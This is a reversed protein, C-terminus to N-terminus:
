IKKAQLIVSKGIQLIGKHKFILSNINKKNSKALKVQRKAQIKKYFRM